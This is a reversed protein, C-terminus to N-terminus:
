IRLATPLEKALENTDTPRANQFLMALNFVHPSSRWVCSPLRTPSCYRGPYKRTIREPFIFALQRSSLQPLIVSDVQLISLATKTM